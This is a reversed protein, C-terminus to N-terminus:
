ASGTLLGVIKIFVYDATAVFAGLLLMSVIIVITSDVLDKRTPWSSRKMEMGVESLFGRVKEVPNM